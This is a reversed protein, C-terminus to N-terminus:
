NRQPLEVYATREGDGLAALTERVVDVTYPAVHEALDDVAVWHIAKIERPLLTAHDTGAPLSAAFVFLTADDWGLWRPLWFAGALRDVYAELSLEESIERAVTTAPPEDPDVVGGPLDWFRKYTLECLLIRGQDDRVLGQAIQRKRPLTSNLIHTFAEQSGLGADGRLRGYLVGDRQEVPAGPESAAWGRIVGERRFGARAVARQAVEDSAAVVVEVRGLGSHAFAHDTVARVIDSLTAPDVDPLSWTLRATVESGTTPRADIDGAPAGDLEASYHGDGSTRLTARGANLVEHTM